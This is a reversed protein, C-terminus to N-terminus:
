LIISEALLNLSEVIAQMALMMLLSEEELDVKILLSFYESL